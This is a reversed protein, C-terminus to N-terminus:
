HIAHPQSLPQREKRAIDYVDYFDIAGKNHVIETIRSKLSSSVRPDQLIENVAQKTLERSFYWEGNYCVRLDLVGIDDYRYVPRIEVLLMCCILVVFATFGIFWGTGMYPSVYMVAGVAIYGVLMAICLYPHKVAFETNFRPKGDRHESQNIQDIEKVLIAKIADMTNVEETSQM